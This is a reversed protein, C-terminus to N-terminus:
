KDSMKDYIEAYERCVKECNVCTKICERLEKTLLEINISLKIKIFNQLIKCVKQRMFTRFGFNQSSLGKQAKRESM